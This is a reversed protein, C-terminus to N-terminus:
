DSSSSSGSATMMLGIMTMIGGVVLKWTSFEAFGIESSGAMFLLVTGTVLIGYKIVFGLWGILCLGLSGMAGILSGLLAGAVMGTNTRRDDM